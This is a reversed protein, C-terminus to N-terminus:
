PQLEHTAGVLEATRQLTQRATQHLEDLTGDNQIVLDARKVKEQLNTALMWLLLVLM